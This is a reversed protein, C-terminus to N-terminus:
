NNSNSKTGNLVGSDLLKSFTQMMNVVADHFGKYYGYSESIEDNLILQPHSNKFEELWNKTIKDM